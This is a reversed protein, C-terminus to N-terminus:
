KLRRDSRAQKWSYTREAENAEIEEPRKDWPLALSKFKGIFDIPEKNHKSHTLEHVLTDRLNNDQEMAQRNLAITNSYNMASVGGPFLSSAFRELRNMPRATIGESEKPMNIQASAFQKDLEPWESKDSGLMREM